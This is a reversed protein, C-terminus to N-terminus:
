NHFFHYLIFFAPYNLTEEYSIKCENERFLPLSLFWSMGIRNGVLVLPFSDKVHLNM